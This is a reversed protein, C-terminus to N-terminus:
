RSSIFWTEQSWLRLMVKFCYNDWFGVCINYKLKIHTIWNNRNMIVESFHWIYGRHDGVVLVWASWVLELYKNFDGMKGERDNGLVLM